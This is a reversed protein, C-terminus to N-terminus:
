LWPSTYLSHRTSSCKALTQGCDFTDSGQVGCAGRYVCRPGHFGNVMDGDVCLRYITVTTAM